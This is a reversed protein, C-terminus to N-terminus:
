PQEKNTIFTSFPLEELWHCFAKWEDLKHAHRQMYITKLQMYNTATYATMLFGSPLKDQLLAIEADNLLGNKLTSRKFAWFARYEEDELCGPPFKTKWDDAMLMAIGKHMTSQSSGIQKFHYRGYQTWWRNKATICCNVHITTLFNGHGSNAGMSALRTARDIHKMYLKQNKVSLGHTWPRDPHRNLVKDILTTDKRFQEPDYTVLMPLGSAVISSALGSVEVNTIKM